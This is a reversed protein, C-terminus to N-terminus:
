TLNRTGANHGVCNVCMPLIVELAGKLYRVEDASGSSNYAVPYIMIMIIIIYVMAIYTHIYTHVPSVMSIPSVRTATTKPVPPQQFLPCLHIPKTASRWSSPKRLSDLRIIKVGGNIMSMCCYMYMEEWCMCVYMCVEKLRKLIPRKDAVGLRHAAALLAAAYM